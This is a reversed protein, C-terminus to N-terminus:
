FIGMVLGVALTEGLEAAAALNEEKPQGRVILPEAVLRMPYGAAIKQVQAVTGRGDNGASVILMYPINIQHAQAPYFTRDFFDKVAGALSGFNEPTAVLLADCWLLDAIGAEMSRVLRVEVGPEMAVGESSAFVLQETAGSQSHYIILVHKKTANMDTLIKDKKSIPFKNSFGMSRCIFYGCFSHILGHM